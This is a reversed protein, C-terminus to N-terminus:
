QNLLRTLQETLSENQDGVKFVFDFLCRRSSKSAWIKGVARKAIEYADSRLHLGKYEIIAMRGDKLEVVFDPYFKGRSTPLWFGPAFDLNRIWSKVNPHGDIMQACVFEEGEGRLDAINAGYYHRQFKFRGSYRNGASAPYENPKFTFPPEWDAALEWTQDLVAQKFRTKCADNRLQEVKDVLRRALVDRAGALEGIEHRHTDALRQLVATFYALRQAQALYPLKKFLLQDLWRAIDSATLHTAGYNMPIQSPDALHYSVRGSEEDTGIEFTSPEAAMDFRGIDIAQLSLLDLEVVELVVERELLQLKGQPDERFALRPIPGFPLGLNAPSSVSFTVANHRVIDDQTTAKQKPSKAAAVILAADEDTVYGRLVVVAAGSADTSVQACAPLPMDVALAVSLPTVVAQERAQAHVLWDGNDLRTQPSEYNVPMLLGAVDLPDFGM